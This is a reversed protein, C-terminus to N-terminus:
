VTWQFHLNAQFHLYICALSIWVNRSESIGLSNFLPLWHCQAASLVHKITVFVNIYIFLYIFEVLLSVVFEGFQRRSVFTTSNTLLGSQHMRLM